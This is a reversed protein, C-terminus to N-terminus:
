NLVDNSNLPAEEWNKRRLATEGLLFPVIYMKPDKERVTALLAKAKDDDGIQFADTAKLIANFEWLRDKPDPLGAALAEASVPSHYAM